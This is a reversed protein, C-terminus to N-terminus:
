AGNADSLAILAIIRPGLDKADGQPATYGASHICSPDQKHIKVTKMSFVPSTPAAGRKSVNYSYSSIQTPNGLKKKQHFGIKFGDYRVCSCM